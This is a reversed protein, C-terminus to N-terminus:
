DSESDEARAWLLQTRIWSLLFNRGNECPDLCLPFTGGRHRSSVLELIDASQRNLWRLVAGPIVPQLACAAARRLLHRGFDPIPREHRGGSCVSIADEMARTRPLSDPLPRIRGRLKLPKMARELRPALRPRIDAQATDYLSLAPRAPRRTRVGRVRQGTEFM